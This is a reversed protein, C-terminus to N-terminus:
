DSGDILKLVLLFKLMEVDKISSDINNDISTNLDRIKNRYSEINKVNSKIRNDINEM